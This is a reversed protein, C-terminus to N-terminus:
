LMTCSSNTLGFHFVTHMYTGPRALGGVAQQRAFLVYTVDAWATNQEVGRPHLRPIIKRIRKRRVINIAGFRDMLFWFDYIFTYM